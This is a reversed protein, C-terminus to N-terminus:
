PRESRVESQAEAIMAAWWKKWSAMAAATVPGPAISLTVVPQPKHVKTDPRPKETEM